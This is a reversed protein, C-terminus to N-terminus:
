AVIQKVRLVRIENADYGAQSLIEDTHEGMAPAPRPPTQDSSSLKFPTRPMLVRGIRPQEIEMFMENSIAPDSTFVEDPAQVEMAPADSEILRGAWHHASNQAFANRLLMTMEPSHKAREPYTAFRADTAWEPHGLGTCVNAWEANTVVALQIFKGDSCEYAIYGAQTGLDAEAWDDKAELAKVMEVMQLSIATAMLSGDIKQGMGTRERQLLALTVAYAFLMSTSTDVAWMGSSRPKGDPLKRRGMIGSAAQVLLDYGRALSLRGKLGYPSLAAYILRPNLTSLKAFDMGLRADVGPRFNHLLVDAIKVLRLLVALGEPQRLDIVIGRKNRNVVWYARSEGRIPSMSFTRRGEDGKPPEIKIIDAGQDGLLMAAGPVAWVQSLDLVRIGELPLPMDRDRKEPSSRLRRMRAGHGLCIVIYSRTLLEPPDSHAQPNLAQAAPFVVAFCGQCNCILQLLGFSVSRM